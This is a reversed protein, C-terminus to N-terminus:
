RYWLKKIHAVTKQLFNQKIKPASLTANHAAIRAKIDAHNKKVCGCIVLKGTTTNRATYGRGHCKQCGNNAYDQLKMSDLKQQLETM